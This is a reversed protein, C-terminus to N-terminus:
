VRGLIEEVLDLLATLMPLSIYLIVASALFQLAKGMAANGSDECVMVAIEATMTVGVVKLLIHLMNEDLSILEQLRHIYAIVPKLYSIAIAAVLCCVLLSLVMGMEANQKRIMLGMIVALVVGAAAQFFRDMM